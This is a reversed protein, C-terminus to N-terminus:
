GGIQARDLAAELQAIIETALADDNGNLADLLGALDYEAEITETASTCVDKAEPDEFDAGRENAGFLCMFVLSDTLNDVTLTLGAEDSQNALEGGTPTEGATLFGYTDLEEASM